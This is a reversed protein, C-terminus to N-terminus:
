VGVLVTAQGSDGCLFVQVKNMRIVPIKLLKIVRKRASGANSARISLETGNYYALYHKM